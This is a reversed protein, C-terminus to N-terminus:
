TPIYTMFLARVNRQRREGENEKGIRELMRNIRMTDQKYLWTSELGLYFDNKSAKSLQKASVLAKKGEDNEYQQGLVANQELLYDMLKKSTNLGHRKLINSGFVSNRLNDVNVNPVRCRQSPSFMNIYKGELMKVAETIIARDMAPAVGPMDILRVPEAKNIELFINEALYKEDEQTKTEPYVEVLVRDFM